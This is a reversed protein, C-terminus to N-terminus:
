LGLDTLKILWGSRWLIIVYLVMAATLSNKESKLAGKYDPKISVDSEIKNTIAPIWQPVKAVYDEFEKGFVTKLNTEEWNIIPFYQLFFMTVFGLTLYLDVNSLFVIGTSLFFNGIYLPNRVHSFPGATILKKGTSYSTTRSVGGIYAVSIIRIIEGLVMLISGILLSQPDTSAFVIMALVFPIPTYSRFRFLIEGIKLYM